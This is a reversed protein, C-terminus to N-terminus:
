PSEDCLLIILSKSPQGLEGEGLCQAKSAAIRESHGDGPQPAMRKGWSFAGEGKSEQCNEEWIHHYRSAFHEIGSHTDAHPLMLSSAPRSLCSSLLGFLACSPLRDRVVM